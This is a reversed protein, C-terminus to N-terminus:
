EGVRPRVPPMPFGARDPIGRDHRERPYQPRAPQKPKRGVTRIVGGPRQQAGQAGGIEDPGRLTGLIPALGPGIEDLRAIVALGYALTTEAGIQYKPAM